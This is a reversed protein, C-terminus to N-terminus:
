SLQQWVVNATPPLTVPLLWYYRSTIGAATAICRSTWTRSLSRSAHEGTCPSPGCASATTHTRIPITPRCWRARTRQLRGAARQFLVVYGGLQQLFVARHRLCQSTMTGRSNTAADVASMEVAREENMSRKYAEFSARKTCCLACHGSLTMWPWQSHVPRFRSCAYSLAKLTTVVALRPQFIRDRCLTEKSM